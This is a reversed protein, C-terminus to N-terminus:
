CGCLKKGGNSVELSRFRQLSEEEVLLLKLFDLCNLVKVWDWILENQSKLVMLCVLVTM